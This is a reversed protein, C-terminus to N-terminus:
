RRKPAEGWQPLWWGQSEATIKNRDEVHAACVPEGCTTSGSGMDTFLTPGHNEHGGYMRGCNPCPLWFYAHITAYLHSMWRPKRM